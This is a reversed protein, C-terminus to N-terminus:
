NEEVNEGIRYPDGIQWKKIKEGVRHTLDGIERIKRSTKKLETHSTGLKGLKISTNELETHLTGM